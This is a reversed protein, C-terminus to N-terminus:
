MSLKPQMIILKWIKNVLLHEGSNVTQNQKGVIRFDATFTPVTLKCNTDTESLIMCGNKVVFFPVPSTSEILFSMILAWPPMNSTTVFKNSPVRKVM